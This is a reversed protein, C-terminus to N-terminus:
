SNLSAAVYNSTVSLEYILQQIHQESTKDSALKKLSSLPYYINDLCTCRWHSPILEDVITDLLLRFQRELHQRRESLNEIKQQFLNEQSLWLSILLPNDPEQGLRIKNRLLKMSPNNHWDYQSDMENM